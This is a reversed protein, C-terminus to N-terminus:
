RIKPALIVESTDRELITKLSGPVEGFLTDVRVIKGGAIHLADVTQNERAIFFAIYDGQPYYEEQLANPSVRYIAYLAAPNIGRWNGIEEKRLFSGESSIFPLVESMTGEAEGERCKPPGGLGDANTCRANTYKVLSRLEQADGSEVAALVPDIASNGTETDLPYDETVTPTPSSCAVLLVVLLFLISSVFRM